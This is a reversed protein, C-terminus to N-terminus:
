AEAEDEVAPMTSMEQALSRGRARMYANRMFYWVLGSGFMVAFIVLSGARLTGGVAPFL